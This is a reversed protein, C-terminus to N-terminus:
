NISEYLKKQNAEVVYYVQEGVIDKFETKIIEMVEELDLAKRYPREESLATFVDAYIIINVEESMEKWETKRPYGSQDSKEHRSGAWKSINEFGKIDKLIKYTFYPHSKLVNFEKKTLTGPKNIIESPVAIKGYDHMYAAMKVEWRHHEDYGLMNALQDAITAVRRSHAATFESKYDVIKSLTAILREISESDKQYVLKELDIKNFLDIISLNDIDFWLYEKNSLHTFAEVVEPHFKIGSLAKIQNVVEEVQDLSSKTNNILIDVRDALHMIHGEFPVSKNDKESEYNVHHYLIMDAIEKFPEFGELMSKGMKAHPEPNEVDIQTLMNKDEVTLAGIDHLSTALVLRAVKMRSLGLEKGLYYAIVSVRRHHDKLIPNIQDITNCFVTLIERMNFETKM